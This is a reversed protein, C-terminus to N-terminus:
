RELMNTLLSDGCFSLASEMCNLYSAPSLADTIRVFCLGQDLTGFIPTM